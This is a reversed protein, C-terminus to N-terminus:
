QTRRKMPLDILKNAAVGIGLERMTDCKSCWKPVPLSAEKVNETIQDSVEMELQGKYWEKLSVDSSAHNLRM